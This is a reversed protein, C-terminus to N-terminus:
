RSKGKRPDEVVVTLPGYMSVLDSWHLRGVQTVGRTGVPTQCTWRTTGRVWLHWDKDRVKAKLRKPEAERLEEATRQNHEHEGYRWLPKPVIRGSM